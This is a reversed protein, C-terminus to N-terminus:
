RILATEETLYLVKSYSEKVLYYEKWFAAIQSIYKNTQKRNLRKNQYLVQGHQGSEAKDECPTLSIRNEWDVQLQTLASVVSRYIM